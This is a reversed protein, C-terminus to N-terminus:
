KPPEHEHHHDEETYFQFLVGGSDKPHIYTEAWGHSRQVGHFPEIGHDKIAGAARDIDEVEFTVHHLGPGCERLFRAIFTDDDLPELLEFHATGGPVELGVGRYGQEDNQWRSAVKMGMLETLLPLADDLKHVAWCVHDLRKIGIKDKM